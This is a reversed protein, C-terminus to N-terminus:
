ARQDDLNKECRAGGRSGRWGRPALAPLPLSLTALDITRTVAARQTMLRPTSVEDLKLFEIFSNRSYFRDHKTLDYNSLPPAGLPTTAAPPRTARRLTPRRAPDAIQERPHGRIARELSNRCTYVLTSQHAHCRGVPSSHPARPLPRARANHAPPSSPAVGQPNLPPTRPPPPQPPFPCPAEAGRERRGRRAHARASAVTNVLSSDVRKLM